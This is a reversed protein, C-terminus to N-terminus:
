CRDKIFLSLVIWIIYFITISFYRSIGSNGLFMIELLSRQYVSIVSDMIRSTDQHVDVLVRALHDLSINDTIIFIIIM